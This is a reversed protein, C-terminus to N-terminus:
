VHARGIQKGTVIPAGRDDSGYGTVTQSTGRQWIDFNGNIIFNKIGNYPTVQQQQLELQSTNSVPNNGMDIGNGSIIVAM